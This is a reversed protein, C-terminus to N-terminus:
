KEVSSNSHVRKCHTESTTYYIVFPNKEEERIIVIIRFSIKQHSKFFFFFFSFVYMEHIDFVPLGHTRPDKLDRIRSLQCLIDCLGRGVSLVHRRLM